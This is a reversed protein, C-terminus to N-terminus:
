KDWFGGTYLIIFHLACTICVDAFSYKGTRERGNLILGSAFYLAFYVIMAIQQWSM